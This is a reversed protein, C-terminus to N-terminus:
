FGLPHTFWYAVALSAALAVAGALALVGSVEDPRREWGVSRALQRYIGKLAVASKAHYYTGGGAQAVAQLESEDMVGGIVFAGTSPNPDGVGITHVVVDQQRAIEAAKVSDIGANSRGDSLLIVIGPPRDGPPIPPLTGDPGPRVRGPLAAVAELLGEGIATRRIFTFSDMREAIVSHDTGPPAVLTTYGGFTVMGVRVRDPVDDLFARAAAKAAELRNPEIDTSRMSGSVDIVLMIASRDAPVPMPATPRSFAALVLTLGALFVVAALHQRWRGSHAMAQRVVALDPFTLTRVAPRRVARVYGVALVPILLLAWLAGPWVFDIM